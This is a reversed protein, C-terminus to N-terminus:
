LENINEDFAEAKINVNPQFVGMSVIKIDISNKEQESPRTYNRQFIGSIFQKYVSSEIHSENANKEENSSLLGKIILLYGQVFQGAKIYGKVLNYFDIGRRRVLKDSENVLQCRTRSIFVIVTYIEKEKRATAKKNEYSPKSIFYQKLGVPLGISFKNLCEEQFQDISEVYHISRIYEPTDYHIDEDKIDFVLTKPQNDENVSWGLQHTPM